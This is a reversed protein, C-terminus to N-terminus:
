GLLLLVAPSLLLLLWAAFPLSIENRGGSFSHPWKRILNCNLTFPPYLCTWLHLHHPFSPFYICFWLWLLCVPHWVSSLNFCSDDLGGIYVSISDFNLQMFVYTYYGCKCLDAAQTIGWGAPHPLFFLKKNIDRTPWKNTFLKKVSGKKWRM